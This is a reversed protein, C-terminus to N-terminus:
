FDWLRVSTKQALLRSASRNSDQVVVYYNLAFIWKERVVYWVFAALLTMEWLEIWGFCTCTFLTRSIGCMDKLFISILMVWLAVSQFSVRFCATRPVAVAPKKRGQPFNKEKSTIGMTISPLIRWLLASVSSNNIYRSM